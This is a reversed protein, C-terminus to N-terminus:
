KLRTKGSSQRTQPVERWSTERIGTQEVQREAGCGRMASYKQISQLVGKMFEKGSSESPRQPSHRRPRVPNSEANEKPSYSPARRVSMWRNLYWRNFGRAPGRALSSADTRGRSIRNSTITGM